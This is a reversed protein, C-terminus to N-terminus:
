FEFTNKTTKTNSTFASELIKVKDKIVKMMKNVDKEDYDYNSRNSCRSLSDIDDLIKQVRRGAVNRFRARKLEQNKKTM